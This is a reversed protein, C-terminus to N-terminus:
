WPYQIVVVHIVVVPIGIVVVHIVARMVVPAASLLLVFPRHSQRFCGSPMFSIM